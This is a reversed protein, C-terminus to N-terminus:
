KRVGIDLLYLNDLGIEYSPFKKFIIILLV